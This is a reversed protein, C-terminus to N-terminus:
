SLVHVGFEKLIETLRSLPLGIVNYFDGEIRDVLLAGLGQIAYAGAKDLPEGTSVYAEIEKKTLSRFHVKTIVSDTVTKGMATDIITFGTVVQHSDGSMLALMRAAHTPSEPKGMIIGRFVGFTDAAIVVSNPHRSAVLKAKRLSLDRALLAPQMTSRHEEPIESPDVVIKLGLRELLERRRPSSSALVITRDSM